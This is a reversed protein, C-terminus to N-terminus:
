VSLEYGTNGEKPTIRKSPDMLIVALFVLPQIRLQGRIVANTISDVPATIWSPAMSNM